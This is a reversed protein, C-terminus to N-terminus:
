LHAYLYRLIEPCQKDPTFESFIKRATEGDKKLQERDQYYVMVEEAMASVDLFPVSKGGGKKLIESVGSVGKFCIVPISLMGAEITVLSFSEERSTLLFVDMKNFELEPNEKEGVFSVMTELGAKQLDCQILLKNLDSLFGVWVFKVQSQPHKKKINYAVQVFLDSRKPWDLTGAGGVIFNGSNKNKNSKPVKTFSYIVEIEKSPISYNKILTEKVLHSVAIFCDIESAYSKLNPLTLSIQIELEHCHLLLLSNSSKCKINHAIPISVVSNAYILDFEEKALKRLLKEKNNPWKKGFGVKKLLHRSYEILPLGASSSTPLELYENAVLQFEGALVGGKLALVTVSIEKNQKSLWQLFYLLVLPAGTRSAEHTVFLIRKM